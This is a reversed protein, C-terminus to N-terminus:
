NSWARDYWRLVHYPEDYGDPMFKIMAAAGRRVESLAGGAIRARATARLTFISNGGLRLRSSGPGALPALQNLENQLFPAVRRKELIFAIAPPAVGIAALVAPQATNVDFQTVSGFVSVCDRLGGRPVLGGNEGREYTGYFLEPTMGKVLLLEEIQEFSAHRSRFSPTLSLYFQDLGTLVSGPARWDLIAAVVEAAQGPPAGLAVMLRALDEPQTKNIDMKSAEPIVEVLAEGEPFSMPLVPTAGSYFLRPPSGPPAPMNGWSVHLIGREVAGVALYYAKLGELASQTRDTEARVTSAIAFAVVGLAAALWLVALLASGRRNGVIGRRAESIAM